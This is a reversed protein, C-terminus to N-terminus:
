YDSISITSAFNCYLPKNYPVCMPGDGSPVEDKLEAGVTYPYSAGQKGANPLRFLFEKVEQRGKAEQM